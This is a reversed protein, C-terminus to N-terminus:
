RLCLGLERCEGSRSFCSKMITWSAMDPELILEFLEWAEKNHWFEVYGSLLANYLSARKEPAQDFLQRAEPVLGERIYGGIVVACSIFNKIPMADFYLLAKDFRKNDICESITSNWCVINREPMEDFLNEDKVLMGFKAYGYPRGHFWMGLLCPTM